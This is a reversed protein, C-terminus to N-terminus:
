RWPQGRRQIFEKPTIFPGMPAFGTTTRPSRGTTASGPTAAAAPRDSMDNELTYGFVDDLAQGQSVHSASKGIVVGLECEWEIQTRGMRCAPRARRRGRDCRREQPVHVSEVTHRRLRAGLHRARKVTGPLLRAPPRRRKVPQRGSRRAGDRRRAASLERAVNVMTTPYIIPPLVKVASVDHVYAPRRGTSPDGWARLIERIRDRLGADYRAILDKMDGPAALRSAPNRVTAHAAALDIVVAERLVIGVFPRGQREFTGLKFPTPADQAACPGIAALLVATGLVVARSM